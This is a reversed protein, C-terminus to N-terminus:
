SDGPAELCIITNFRNKRGIVQNKEALHDVLIWGGGCNVELAFRKIRCIWLASRRLFTLQKLFSSVEALLLKRTLNCKNDLSDKIQPSQAADDLCVNVEVAYEHFCDANEGDSCLAM